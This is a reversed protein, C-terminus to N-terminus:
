EVYSWELGACIKRKGKCCSSIDSTGCKVGKYNRVWSAADSVSSFIVGESSRVKRRTKENVFWYSDKLEPTKTIDFSWSMGYSVHRKGNCCSSIHSETAKSYGIERMRLKAEKLSDFVEGDSNIVPKMCKKAKELAAKKDWKYGYMGYGGGGISINCLNEIGIKNIIIKEYSFACAEPMLGTIRKKTYGSKKVIDKWQDSRLSRSGIRNGTGKGIYFVSGDDERYHAYVYYRREPNM